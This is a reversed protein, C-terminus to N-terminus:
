KKQKQAVCAMHALWLPAPHVRIMVGSWLALTINLATSASASRNSSSGEQWTSCRWDAVWCNNNLAIMLVTATGRVINSGGPLTQYCYAGETHCAAIHMVSPPWELTILRALTLASSKRWCEAAPGGQM